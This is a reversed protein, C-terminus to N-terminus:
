SVLLLVDNEDAFKAFKRRIFVVPRPHTAVVVVVRDIYESLYSKRRRSDHIM